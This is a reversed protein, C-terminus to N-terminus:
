VGPKPWKVFDDDDLVKGSEISKFLKNSDELELFEWGSVKEPNEVLPSSFISIGHTWYMGYKKPGFTEDANDACVNYLATYRPAKSWLSWSEDSMKTQFVHIREHLLEHWHASSGVSEFLREEEESFDETAAAVAGALRFRMMNLNKASNPPFLFIYSIKNLIMNRAVSKAIGRDELAKPDEAAAMITITSRAPLNQQDLWALKWGGRLTGSDAIAFEFEPLIKSLEQITADTPWSETDMLRWVTRESIETQESLRRIHATLSISEGDDLRKALSRALSARLLKGFGEVPAEFRKPPM